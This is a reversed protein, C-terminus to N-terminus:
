YSNGSPIWRSRTAMLSSARKLLMTILGSNGAPSTGVFRCSLKHENSGLMCVPSRLPLSIIQTLLFGFPGDQINVPGNGITATSAQGKM